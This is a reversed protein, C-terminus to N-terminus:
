TQASLSRVFDATEHAHVKAARIHGDFGQALERIVARTRILLYADGAFVAARNYGFLTFPLSFRALGDYLYMRFTPYLADLVDAIHIMQEARADAPLGRWLGEGRAFGELTQLPMCLEMDSEPQRSYNLRQATQGQMRETLAPSHGAEYNIVADTRLLDPLRTPVYRIKQGMAEAHWRTMRSEGSSETAEELEVSDLTESSLGREESLGLLWDVSVQCTEAVSLLTDARPLRATEGSALQSLASRDIGLRAAFASQTIGSQTQLLSLRERFKAAVTRKNM